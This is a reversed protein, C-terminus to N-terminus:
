REREFRVLRIKEGGDVFQHYEEGKSIFGVSEYCRIAATNEPFVVLSLRRAAYDDFAMECLDRTFRQGIGRGRLGPEVVIHGLWYHHRDNRMPNLEGYAVPRGMERACYAFAAGGPKPWGMVKRATLPLSTSPALQFLEEATVIWGAITDAFARRFPVLTV